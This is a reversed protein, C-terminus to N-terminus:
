WPEVTSAPTLGPLLRALDRREMLRGVLGIPV